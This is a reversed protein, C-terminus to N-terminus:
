IVGRLDDGFSRQAEEPFFVGLGLRRQACPKRAHAGGLPFAGSIDAGLKAGSIEHRIVPYDKVYRAVFEAQHGVNGIAKATDQYLKDPCM